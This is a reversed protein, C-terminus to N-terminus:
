QIMKRGFSVPVYGPHRFWKGLSALATSSRSSTFHTALSGGGGQVVLYLGWRQKVPKIVGAQDADIM